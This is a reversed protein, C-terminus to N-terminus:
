NEHARWIAVARRRVEVSATMASLERRLASVSDAGEGEEDTEGYDNEGVDDVAVAGELVQEGRRPSVPSGRDRICM